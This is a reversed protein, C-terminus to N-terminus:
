RPRPHYRRRPASDRAGGGGHRRAASGEREGRARGPAGSPRDPRADSLALLEDIEPRTLPRWSGVKLGRAHLTGIAVRWLKRVRLDLAAFVRRIERNKGERLTVLLSSSREGRKLLRVREFDARFGAVRVGDRLAEVDADKVWGDVQVRYTKPVQYRPHALRNAFDGDNTLILLGVTEEDLRGVPFIRGKKRDGILDVARPRAERADNTCVVGAPKNLLYYNHREGEPRLVVGDIEVKQRAPDVKTGLETVIEGDITVQGAAILRDAHRRSAVGNDALMKNLRVLRPEGAAEEAQPEAPARAREGLAAGRQRKKGARAPRREKRSAM